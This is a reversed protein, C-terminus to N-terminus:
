KTNEFDGHELLPGIIRLALEGFGTRELEEATSFCRRIYPDEVEGRSFDNGAFIDQAKEAANDRGNHVAEAYAWSARPFFPAPKRLGKWYVELLDSLVASSDEPCRYFCDGDGTCLASVAPSSKRKPDACDLILHKIWFMILQRESRRPRHGIFGGPYLGSVAGTIKFGSISLEVRAPEVAAGARLAVVRAALREISGCTDEFWCTGPTGPPLLGGANLRELERRINRGQLAKDLLDCELEYRELGELAFPEREDLIDARDELILGLRRNLLFRAPNSFFSCLDDISINRYDAAPESLGFSFFGPASSMAGAEGSLIRAAEFNERSYSILEAERSQKFYKPNFAQLAHKVTIGTRGYFGTLYDILESVLVSPPRESNDRIDQGIYSLYLKERASVIAELFLYRDDFRRSRDGPLPKQAM